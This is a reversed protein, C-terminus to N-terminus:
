IKMAIMKKIICKIQKYFDSTRVFIYSILYELRIYIIQVSNYSKLYGIRIIKM